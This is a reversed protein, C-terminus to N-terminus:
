IRDTTKRTDSTLPYYIVIIEKSKNIFIKKRYM